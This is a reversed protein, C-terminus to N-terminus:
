DQIITLKELEKNIKKRTSSRMGYLKGSFSAILSFMDEGLEEQVTKDKLDDSIIIIEVKYHKCIKNLYDFGFRTLRDKYMIFIRNVKNDLVMDIIKSLEKRSDNLGSGVEKFIIPSKLNYSISNEIINLVQRDLDGKTKQRQSSVRAYIIDRKFEQTDDVILGKQDLYEVLDEKIMVRYNKETRTFKLRGDNAYTRITTPTLGLYKGVEGSKYQKKTFESKKFM